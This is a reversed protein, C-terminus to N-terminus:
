DWLCHTTVFTFLYVHINVLRGVWWVGTDRLTVYNIRFKSNSLCHLTIWCGSANRYVTVGMGEGGWVVICMVGTVEM